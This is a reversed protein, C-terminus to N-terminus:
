RPQTLAKNLKVLGNQFIQRLVRLDKIKMFNKARQVAAEFSNNILNGKEDKPRDEPHRYSGEFQMLGRGPGRWVQAQKPDNTGGTEHYAIPVLIKNIIDESAVNKDSAIVDVIEKMSRNASLEQTISPITHQVKPPFPSVSGALRRIKEAGTEVAIPAKEEVINPRPPAPLPVEATNPTDDIREQVELAIEADEISTPEQVSM